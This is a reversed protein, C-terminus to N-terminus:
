MTEAIRRIQIDGIHLKGEIAGERQIVRIQVPERGETVSFKIILAMRGKAPLKFTEMHLVVGHFVDVDISNGSGNEDVELALTLEWVGIPLYLYPGYVLCRAPGVMEIPQDLLEDMGGKGLLLEAPWRFEGPGEGNEGRRMSVHLAEVIRLEPGSLDLGTGIPASNAIQSLIAEEVKSAPTGDPLLRQVIHDFQEDSAELGLHQLVQRIFHGITLGNSRSIRLAMPSVFLESTAAFSLNTQRVAQKWDMDYTRLMFGIIDAPDENLALFPMRGQIFASSLGREPADTYLHVNNSQRSALATRFDQVTAVSVYDYNGLLIGTMTNLAYLSWHVFAGPPGFTAVLTAM